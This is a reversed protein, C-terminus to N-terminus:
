RSRSRQRVVVDRQGRARRMSLITALASALVALAVLSDNIMTASLVHEIALAFTGVFFALAAVIWTVWPKYLSLTGSGVLLMGLLLSNASAARAHPWMFVSLALWAGCAIPVWATLGHLVRRKPRPLLEIPPASRLGPPVVTPARATM